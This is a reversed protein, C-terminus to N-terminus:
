FSMWEGLREIELMQEYAASGFQNALITALQQRRLRHGVFERLREIVESQEEAMQHFARMPVRVLRSPVHARVLHTRPGGSLIQMAGAIEGPDFQVVLLDRGEADRLFVDLSGEALVYLHGAPE